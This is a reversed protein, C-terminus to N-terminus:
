YWPNSNQWQCQPLSLIAFQVLVEKSTGPPVTTSILFWLSFIWPEFGAVPMPLSFFALSGYHGQKHRTASHYFVHSTIRLDTTQIKDNVILYFPEIGFHGQKQGALVTTSYEVWLGPALPEFGAVPMPLSFFALSCYHGQKHRTASHYFAWSMIRLDLTKFRAISLWLFHSLVLIVKSKGPLV